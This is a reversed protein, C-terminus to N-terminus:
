RASVGSLRDEHWRGATADCGAAPGTGTTCAAVRPTSAAAGGACALPAGIGHGDCANLFFEVSGFGYMLRETRDPVVELPEFLVVGKCSSVTVGNAGLVEAIETDRQVKWREYVRNLCVSSARTEVIRSLLLDLSSDGSYMLLKSGLHTELSRSLCTLAQHLWFKTAGGM